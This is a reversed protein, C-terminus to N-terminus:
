TPIIGESQHSKQLSVILKAVRKMQRFATRFNIPTSLSFIEHDPTDLIIRVIQLTKVRSILTNALWFSEMEVATINESAANQRAQDKIIVESCGISTNYIKNQKEDKEKSLKNELLSAFIESDPISLSNEDADDVHGTEKIRFIKNAVVIDGPHLYDACAGAIGIIVLNTSPSANKSYAKAFSAAKDKGMGVKKVPLGAKKVAMAEISLPALFELNGSSLKDVYSSMRISIDADEQRDTDNQIEAFRNDSM